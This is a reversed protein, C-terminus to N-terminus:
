PLLVGQCLGTLAFWVYTPADVDGAEDPLTGDMVDMEFDMDDPLVFDYSEVVTQTDRPM